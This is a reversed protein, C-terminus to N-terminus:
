ESMSGAFIGVWARSEYMAPKAVMRPVMQLLVDNEMVRKRMEVPRRLHSTQNMMMETFRTSPTEAVM